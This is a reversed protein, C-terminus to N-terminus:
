IKPQLTQTYVILITVFFMEPLNIYLFESFNIKILEYNMTLLLDYYFLVNYETLPNSQFANLQLNCSISFLGLPNESLPYPDISNASGDISYNGIGSWDSYYNGELTVDDYWTNNIGSDYAQLTNDIFSNHHIINNSGSIIDLGKYNSNQILNFTVLSSNVEVFEIGKGNNTLINNSLLSNNQYCLQIGISNNDCTNHILETNEIGVIRIGRISNNNCVNNIVSITTIDSFYWPNVYIGYENNNCTNNILTVNEAGNFYMGWGDINNCTNNVFTLNYSLDPPKAMGVGGEYIGRNNSCNNNAILLNSCGDIMFSCINEIFTSNSCKFIFMLSNEDFYNNKVKAGDTFKIFLDNNIFYNDEVIAGYNIDVYHYILIGFQNNYCYNNKVITNNSEWIRIGVEIYYCYNNEIVCENSNWIRIGDGNGWGGPEMLNNFTNDVIVATGPSVSDIYIGVSSGNTYLFCNRIIFYKTTDRIHIGYQSTAKINRNSIIYPDDKSGTGPFEYLEFDRDSWIIIPNDTKM